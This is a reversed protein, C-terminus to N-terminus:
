QGDDGRRDANRRDGSGLDDLQQIQHGPHHRVGTTLPQGDCSTLTMKVPVTSKLKFARM